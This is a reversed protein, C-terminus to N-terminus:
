QVNQVKGCTPFVIKKDSLYTGKIQAIKHGRLEKVESGRKLLPYYILEDNHLKM